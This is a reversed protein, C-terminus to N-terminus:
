TLAVSQMHEDSDNESLNLHNLIFSAHWEYCTFFTLVFCLNIVEETGHFMDENQRFKSADLTLNLCTEHSPPLKFYSM